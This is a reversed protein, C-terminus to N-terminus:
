WHKLGVDTPFVEAIGFSIPDGGIVQPTAIFLYYLMDNPIALLAIFKFLIRTSRAQEM